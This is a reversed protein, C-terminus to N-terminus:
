SGGGVVPQTQSAQQQPAPAAAAYPVYAPAATPKEFVIPQTFRITGKKTDVKKKFDPEGPAADEFLPITMPPYGEAHLVLDPVDSGEAVPISFSFGNALDQQVLPPGLDGRVVAREGVPFRVRGHVTWTRYTPGHLTKAYYTAIFMLVVVYGAFSGGLAVKYGHFPGSVDASSPLLKFLLYAPIIPLLVIASLVILQNSM